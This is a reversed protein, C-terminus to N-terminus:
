FTRELASYALLPRWAAGFERLASRVAALEDATIDPPPVGRRRCSTLLNLAFGAPDVSGGWQETQLCEVLAESQVAQTNKARDIKPDHLKATIEALRASHSVQGFFADRWGLTKEVVFHFAEHPLVGQRMMPMSTSTGDPYVCTLVDTTDSPSNKIFRVLM